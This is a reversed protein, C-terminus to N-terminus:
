SIDKLFNVPDISEGNRRIEFLLKVEDAGTKGMTGISQGAQVTQGESVLTAQQHGYVSLINNDHKIITLKGYGALDEGVYIVKGKTVSRIEQGELGLIEIGKIDSAQNFSSSLEGDTPWDWNKKNKDKLDALKKSKKISKRSYVERIVKPESIKLPEGYQFEINLGQEENENIFVNDETIKEESYPMIKTEENDNQEEISNVKSKRLIDLRIRDGIKVFYPKKLGNSLAVEKYDFGCKLSISFLTEDKKVTYIDPCKKSIKKREGDVPAPFQSACGFLFLSVILFFVKNM